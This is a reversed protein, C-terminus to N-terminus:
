ALACKASYTYIDEEECQMPRGHTTNDVQAGNIAVSNPQVSIFCRDEHTIPLSTCTHLSM